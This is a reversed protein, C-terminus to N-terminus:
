KRLQRAKSVRLHRFLEKKVSGGEATIDALDGGPTGSESIGAPTGGFPTIGLKTSGGVSSRKTKPMQATM